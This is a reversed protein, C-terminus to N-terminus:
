PTMEGHDHFWEATAMLDLGMGCAPRAALKDHLVQAEEPTDFAWSAFWLGDGGTVPSTTPHDALIAGFHNINESDHAGGVGITLQVLYQRHCILEPGTTEDSM